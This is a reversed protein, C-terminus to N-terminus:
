DDNLRSSISNYLEEKNGKSKVGVIKAIEKLEKITTDELPKLVIDNSNINENHNNNSTINIVKTTDELEPSLNNSKDSDLNVKISSMDIDMDDFDMDEINSEPNNEEDDDTDDNDNEANDNVDTININYINDNELHLDSLNSVNEMTLESIDIDQEAREDDADDFDSNKNDELNSESDSENVNDNDNDNDNDSLQEINNIDEQKLDLVFVEDNDNDSLQEINNIDEQKLDLVIVEDENELDADNDDNGNGQISQNPHHHVIFKQQEELRPLLDGFVYKNLQDLNGGLQEIKKVFEEQISPTEGGAQGIQVWLNQIERSQKFNLWFLYISAIALISLGLLVYNNNM